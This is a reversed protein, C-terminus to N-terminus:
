AELAQPCYCREPAVVLLSEALTEGDRLLALRHYGPDVAPLVLALALRQGDDGWWSELVSLAACHVPSTWPEGQEPTLALQLRAERQAEPLRLAVPDYLRSRRRVIVPPLVERWRQRQTAALRREVGDDNDIVGMCALLAQLAQAGAEHRVGWIDHYAPEVGHLAALQRLPDAEAM